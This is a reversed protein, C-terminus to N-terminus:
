HLVDKWMNKNIEIDPYFFDNWGIFTFAKRILEYEDYIYHVYWRVCLM